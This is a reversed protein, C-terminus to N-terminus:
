VSELAEEIMSKTVKLGNRQIITDKVYIPKKAVDCIKIGDTVNINLDIKKNNSEVCLYAYYDDNRELYIKLGM